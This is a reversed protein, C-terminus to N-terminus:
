CARAAPFELREARTWRQAAVSRISAKPPRQGAGRTDTWGEVSAGQPRHNTSVALRPKGWKVRTLTTGEAEVVRFGEAEGEAGQPGGRRQPCRKSKEAHPSFRWDATPSLTWFPCVGWM